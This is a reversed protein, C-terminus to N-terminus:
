NWLERITNKSSAAGSANKEFQINDLLVGKDEINLINTVEGEEVGLERRWTTLNCYTGEGEVLCWGGKASSGVHANEEIQVDIGM